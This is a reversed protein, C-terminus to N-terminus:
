HLFKSLVLRSIAAADVYIFERIYVGVDQLLHNFAGVFRLFSDQVITPPGSPTNAESVIFPWRRLLSFSWVAPKPKKPSPPHLGTAFRVSASAETPSFALVHIHQSSLGVPHTCHSSRTSRRPEHWLHISATAQWRMHRNSEIGSRGVLSKRKNTKRRSNLAVRKNLMWKM